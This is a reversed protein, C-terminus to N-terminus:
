KIHIHQSSDINWVILFGLWENNAEWIEAKAPYQASDPRKLTGLLLSLGGLFLDIACM